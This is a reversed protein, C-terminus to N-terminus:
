TKFSIMRPKAHEMLNYICKFLQLLVRFDRVSNKHEISGVYMEIQYLVSSLGHVM